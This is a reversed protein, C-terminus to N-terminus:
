EGGTACGRPPEDDVRRAPGRGDRPAQVVELRAGRRWAEELAPAIRRDGRGLEQLFQGHSVRLDARLWYDPSTGTYRALSDAIARKEEAPLAYGRMLAPMYEDMAFREVEDLFDALAPPRDELAEHTM